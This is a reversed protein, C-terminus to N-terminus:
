GDKRAVIHVQRIANEETSYGDRFRPALELGRVTALDTEDARAYSEQVVEFGAEQHLRTYDSRRLRNQFHLSSNVLRWTRDSFKLFNFASISSDFYSYHDKMDVVSSVLGGPRLIRWTDALITAIDDRPIHELTFTNSAFDFTEGEFGSRRADRPALYSIGLREHLHELSGIPGPDIERLARGAQRELDARHHGYQHLTHNLQDFRLNATIDVLTQHNVGLGHYVVPTILDWGAGFEYLHAVGVEPNPDHRELATLHSVTEAAHLRFHEDSRPLQHTIHRQLLNNLREGGPLPSVAKQVAAKAV